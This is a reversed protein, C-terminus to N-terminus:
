FDLGIVERLNKVQALAYQECRDKATMCSMGNEPNVCKVCFDGEGDSFLVENLTFGKKCGDCELGRLLSEPDTSFFGEGCNGEIPLEFNITEREFVLEGGLTLRYAVVFEEAKSLTVDAEPIRFFERGADELLSVQDDTAEGANFAEAAEAYARDTTAATSDM